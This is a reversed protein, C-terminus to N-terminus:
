VSKNRYVEITLVTIYIDFKGCIADNQLRSHATESPTSMNGNQGSINGRVPVFGSM